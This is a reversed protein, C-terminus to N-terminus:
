PSILKEWKYNLFQKRFILGLTVDAAKAALYLVCRFTGGDFGNLIIFVASCILGAAAFVALMVSAPSIYKMASSFNYEKINKGSKLLKVSNWVLAFLAAVEFIYPIIVYFTNSMGAANICGSGIVVASIMVLLATLVAYAKKREEGTGSFTYYGGTYVYRGGSDKKYDNLYEWRKRGAM